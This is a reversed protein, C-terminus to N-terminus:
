TFRRLFLKAIAFIAQWVTRPAPEGIRYKLPIVNHRNAEAYAMRKAHYSVVLAYFVSAKVYRWLCSSKLCTPAVPAEVSVQRSILTGNWSRHVASWEIKLGAANSSIEM